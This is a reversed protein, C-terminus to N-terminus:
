KSLCVSVWARVAEPRVRLLKEEVIGWIKRFDV